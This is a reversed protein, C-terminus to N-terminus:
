FDNAAQESWGGGGAAVAIGMFQCHRASFQEGELNTDSDFLRM